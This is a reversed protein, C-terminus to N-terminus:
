GCYLRHKRSYCSGVREQCGDMWEHIGATGDKIYSFGAYVCQGDAIRILFDPRSEKTQPSFAGNTNLKVYEANSKCWPVFRINSVM